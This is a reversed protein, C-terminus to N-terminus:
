DMIHFLWLPIKWIRYLFDMQRMELLRSNLNHFWHHLGMFLFWRELERLDVQLLGENRLFKRFILEHIIKLQCHLVELLILLL